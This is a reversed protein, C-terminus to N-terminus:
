KRRRQARSLNAQLIEETEIMDREIKDFRARAEEFVQLMTNRSNIPMIRVLATGGRVNNTCDRAIKNACDTNCAVGGFYIGELYIGIEKDDEAKAYLVVLPEMM